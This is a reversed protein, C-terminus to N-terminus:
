AAAGAAWGDACDRIPKDPFRDSGTPDAGPRYILYKNLPGLLPDLFVERMTTDLTYRDM